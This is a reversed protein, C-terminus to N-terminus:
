DRETKIHNGNQDFVVDYEVRLNSKDVIEVEYTNREKELSVIAFNAFNATLYTQAKVPLLSSPVESQVTGDVEKWQGQRDFEVKHSSSLYVKIERLNNRKALIVTSNPFEQALFVTVTEPLEKVDIIDKKDDQDIDLGIYNQQADYIIELSSNLKVEYTRREKEIELIYSDPFTLQVHENIKGVERNLFDQPLASGDRSEIETWNGQKDFDIDLRSHDHVMSVKYFSNYYNNERVVVKGLEASPFVENLFTKSSSPLEDYSIVKASDNSNDDSSCATFGMTMLALLGLLIKKKM